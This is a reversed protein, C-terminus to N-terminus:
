APPVYLLAYYVTPSIPLHPLLVDREYPPLLHYDHRFSPEGFLCVFCYFPLLLSFLLPTVHCSPPVLPIRSAVVATVIQARILLPLLPTMIWLSLLLLLFAILWRVYPPITKKQLNYWLLRCCYNIMLILIVLSILQIFCVCSHLVEIAADCYVTMHWQIKAFRLM